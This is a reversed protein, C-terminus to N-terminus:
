DSRRRRRTRWGRGWSASWGWCLLFCVYERRLNSFPNEKRKFVNRWLVNFVLILLFLTIINKMWKWTLSKCSIQHIIIVWSVLEDWCYKNWTKRDVFDRLKPRRIIYNKQSKKKKLVMEKNLIHEIKKFVNMKKNLFTERKPCICKESVRLCETLVDPLELCRRSTLCWSL